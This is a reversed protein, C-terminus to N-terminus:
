TPEIVVVVLSGLGVFPWDVTRAMAPRGRFQGVATTCGWEYCLNMLAVGPYDLADGLSRILGRWPNDTAKLWLHALGDGAFLLLKPVGRTAIELTRVARQRHTRVGDFPDELRFLEVAPLVASQAHNTGDISLGINSSSGNHRVRVTERLRM